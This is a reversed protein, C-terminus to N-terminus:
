RQKGRAGRGHVMWSFCDHRVGQRPCRGAADRHRSLPAARTNGAVHARVVCTLGLCLCEVGRVKAHVVVLLMEADRVCRPVPTGEPADERAARLLREAQGGPPLFYAELGPAPEAVGARRRKLFEGAAQLLLCMLQNLITALWQRMLFGGPAQM